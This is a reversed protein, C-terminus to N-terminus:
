IANAHPDGSGLLGLCLTNYNEQVYFVEIAALLLHRRWWEHTDIDM